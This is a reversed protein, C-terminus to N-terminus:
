KDIDDFAPLMAPRIAFRELLSSGPSGPRLENECDEFRRDLGVRSPHILENCTQCIAIALM